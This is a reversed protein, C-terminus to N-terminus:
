LQKNILNTTSFRRELDFPDCFVLLCILNSIKSNIPNITIQYQFICVYDLLHFVPSPPAFPLFVLFWFSKTSSFNGEFGISIPRIAETQSTYIIDTQGDKADRRM